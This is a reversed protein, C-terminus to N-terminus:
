MRKYDNKPRIQVPDDFRRSNFDNAMLEDIWWNPSKFMRLDWHWYLTCMMLSMMVSYQIFMFLIHAWANIIELNVNTAIWNVLVVPAKHIYSWWCRKTACYLFPNIRQCVSFLHIKPSSFHIIFVRYTWHQWSHHNLKIKLNCSVRM